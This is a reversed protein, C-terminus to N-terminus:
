ASSNERKVFTPSYDMHAATVSLQEIPKIDMKLGEKFVELLQVPTMFNTARNNFDNQVRNLPLNVIKSEAFCLGTKHMIKRATVSWAGELRNPTTYQMNLFDQKIDEKRFITMDVTHPYAWDLYAKNFNWSFVGSSVEKLSPVPQNRNISYCYSLNKGLRLFFGYAHYDELCQACYALDVDRKVVIDDVAFVIYDSTSEQFSAKLTLQKFDGGPNNGQAFYIVKPFFHQVEKYSNLYLEDSRFIVKIKNFNSFHKDISELLAYLQLPRNYSFIVIDPNYKAFLRYNSCSGLFSFFIFIIFRFKM